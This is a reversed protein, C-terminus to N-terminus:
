RRLRAALWTALTDLVESPVSTQGLGPYESPSGDGDTPLFLHNLRPFIRVTVDRNGGGRIAAALTDAQGVSVQRDLAGHMILVPQRLRRALPLPDFGVFWRTWANTGAWQDLQGEIGSLLRRREEEPLDPATQIPRTFQDRLIDRGMKGPGAMVVVAAIRRDEAAALPGIVGGESHGIFAIRQGDIGRRARLWAVTQRLDDAYVQTTVTTDGGGSADVGRDDCRLVGIGAQALREAVQRFPRYNGVLPWLEEDRPQRGSGTLTVAVPVPRRGTLPLTLTCGLSFTDTAAYRIPVRVEEATYPAGPPAAYDPHPRTMGALPPLSDRGNWVEGRLRQATVDIPGAGTRSMRAPIGATTVFATDGSFRVTIAVLTDQGMPLFRFTTDQGAAREVAEAIVSVSQAPVVGDPRSVLARTRTREGSVTTAVLSDGRREIAYTARLSDGSANFVRSEFRMLLGSGDYEARSDVKLALLPVVVSREIVGGTHRYTERGVEAGNQMFRYLRAAGPEQAAAVSVAVAVAALAMAGNRVAAVVM